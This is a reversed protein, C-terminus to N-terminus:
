GYGSRAVGCVAPPSLEPLNCRGIRSPATPLPSMSVSATPLRDGNREALSVAQVSRRAGCWKAPTAISEGSCAARRDPPLSTAPRAMLRQPICCPAKVLTSIAAARNRAPALGPSTSSATATGPTSRRSVPRGSSPERKLISRWFRTSTTMSLCATANGARSASLSRRPTTYNNGTTIYVVGRKPDIAPTSSWIAGGTYGKPVMPTQWIVKGTKLYIATMSAVFSCCEYKTDTAWHEENSSTGIYIVGNYVVPSQTLMTAPHKDLMVKWLFSGTEPNLGLLYSSDHKAGFSQPQQASVLVGDALVPTTRSVSDSWGTYESVKRSWAVQGTRADLKHLGGGWDPVYVYGGTVLPTASVSGLAKFSWAPKLTAVNGINILTEHPQNRDNTLDNGSMQWDVGSGALPAPALTLACAMVWLRGDSVTGSAM